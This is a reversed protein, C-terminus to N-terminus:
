SWYFPIITVQYQIELNEREKEAEFIEPKAAEVVRLFDITEEINNLDVDSEKPVSQKVRQPPTENQKSKPYRRPKVPYSSNLIDESLVSITSENDSLASFDIDNLDKKIENRSLPRVGSSSTNSTIFPTLSPFISHYFSPPSSYLRLSLIKLTKSGHFGIRM